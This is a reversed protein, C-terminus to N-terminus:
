RGWQDDTLRKIALELLKVAENTGLTAAAAYAAAMIQAKHDM